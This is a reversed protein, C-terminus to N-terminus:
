GASPCCVGEWTLSLSMEACVGSESHVFSVEDGGGRGGVQEQSAPESRSETVWEGLVMLEQSGGSVERLQLGKGSKEWTRGNM